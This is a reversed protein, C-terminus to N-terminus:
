KERLHCKKYKKGSGCPCPDNRGTRMKLEPEAVQHRHQGDSVMKDLGDSIILAESRWLLILEKRGDKISTALVLVKDGIHKEYTLRPDEDCSVWDAEPVNSIFRSVIERLDPVEEHVKITPIVDVGNMHFAHDKDFFKHSM